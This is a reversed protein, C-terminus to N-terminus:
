NGLEGIVYIIEEGSFAHRDVIESEMSEFWFVLCSITIRFDTVYSKSDCLPHCTAVYRITQCPANSHYNGSTIVVRTVVPLELDTPSM